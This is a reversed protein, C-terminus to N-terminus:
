RGGLADEREQRAAAVDDAVSAGVNTLPGTYVALGHAGVEVHESLRVPVSAGSPQTKRPRPTPSPKTHM